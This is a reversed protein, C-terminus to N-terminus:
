PTHGGAPTPGPGLTEDRQTLNPETPRKVDYSGAARSDAGEGQGVDLASPATSEMLGSKSEAGRVADRGEVVSKLENRITDVPNFSPRLSEAKRKVGELDRKLEDLEAERIAEDFQMRFEGAMRRLKGTIQGLTRLAKPLEKPGIVILAVGGILMLEGWSMDLM